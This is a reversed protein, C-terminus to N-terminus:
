SMPHDSATSPLPCILYYFCVFFSPFFYSFLKCLALRSFLKLAPQGMNDKLSIAWNLMDTLRLRARDGIKTAEAKSPISRGSYFTHGDEAFCYIREMNITVEGQQRYKIAKKMPKTFFAAWQRGLVFHKQTTLWEIIANSAGDIDRVFNPRERATLSPFLIELFRDAGFRRSLRHGLELKPPQLSVTFLPGDGTDNWALELVLSVAMDGAQFTSQCAEWAESGCQEPLTKNAFLPHRRLAGRLQTQDSWCSELALDDLDELRVGCHLAIRTVEWSVALPADNLFPPLPPWINRLRDDLAALKESWPPLRHKAMLDHEPPSPTPHEFNASANDDPSSSADRDFSPDYPGPSTAYPHARKREQSDAEVTTQSDPIPVDSDPQSFVDSVFTARSTNVSCRSISATRRLLTPSLRLRDTSFPSTAKIQVPGDLIDLEHRHHDPPKARKPLPNLPPEGSTRKVAAPCSENSPDAPANVPRPKPLVASRVGSLLHLLADQLEHSEARSVAQAPCPTTPDPFTDRDALLKRVWRSCIVQAYSDFDALANDLADRNQFYLFHLHRYIRDIRQEEDGARSIWEKRKRPSQTIDFVQLRLNYRRDLDHFYKDFEQRKRVHIDTAPIPARTM